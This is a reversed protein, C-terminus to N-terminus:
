QDVVKKTETFSPALEKCLQVFDVHAKALRGGVTAAEGDITPHDVFEPEGGRQRFVHCMRGDLTYCFAFRIEIREPHESPRVQLGERGWTHIDSRENEEVKQSVSWAEDVLVIGFFNEPLESALLKRGFATVEPHYSGTLSMAENFLPLFNGMDDFVQEPLKLTQVTFGGEYSALAWVSAPRDWGGNEAEQELTHVIMRVNDEHACGGVRIDVKDDGQFAAVLADDMSRYPNTM